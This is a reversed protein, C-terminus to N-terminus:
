QGYEAQLRAGISQLTPLDAPAGMISLLDQVTGFGSPTPLFFRGSKGVRKPYANAEPDFKSGTAKVAQRFRKMAADYRAPVIGKTQGLQGKSAAREVVAARGRIFFPYAFSARLREWSVYGGSRVPDLMRWFYAVACATAVEPTTLLVPYARFIARLEPTDGASDPRMQYVGQAKNSGPRLGGAFPRWRSETYATADLFDALGEWQLKKEYRQATEVVAPRIGQNKGVEKVSSNGKAEAGPAFLVLALGALALALALM